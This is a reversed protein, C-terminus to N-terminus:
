VADKNRGVPHWGDEQNYYGFIDEFTAVDGPRHYQRRGANRHIKSLSVKREMNEHANPPSYISQLM